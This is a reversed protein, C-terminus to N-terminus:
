VSSSSGGQIKEQAAHSCSLMSAQQRALFNKLLPTMWSPRPRRPFKERQAVPSKHCWGTGGLRNKLLIRLFDARQELRSSHEQKASFYFQLSKRSASIRQDLKV